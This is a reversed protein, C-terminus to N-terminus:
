INPDLRGDNGSKTPKGPLNTEFILSVFPLDPHKKQQDWKAGLIGTVVLIMVMKRLVDWGLGKNTM